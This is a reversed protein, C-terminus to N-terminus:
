QIAEMAALVRSSGLGDVTAGGLDSMAKRRAGDRRLRDVGEAVVGDRLEHHGGLRVCPGGADSGLGSAVGAQNEAVIVLMTPVGMACLEYATHGAGSIALEAWRM